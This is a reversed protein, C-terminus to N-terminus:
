YENVIEIEDNNKIKFLLILCNDDNFGRNVIEIIQHNIKFEKKYYNGKITLINNICNFSINLDDDLEEYTFPIKLKSVKRIKNNVQNNIEREINQNNFQQNKNSANPFITGFLNNFLDDNKNMFNLIEKVNKYIFYIV